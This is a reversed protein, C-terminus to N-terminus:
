LSVHHITTINVTINLTSIENYITSQILYGLSYWVWSIPTAGDRFTKNFQKAPSKLGIAQKTALSIDQKEKLKVKNEQMKSMLTPRQEIDSM